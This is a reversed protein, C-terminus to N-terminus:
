ETLFSAPARIMEVKAAIAIDCVIAISDTPITPKAKTPKVVPKAASKATLLAFFSYAYTLFRVWDM